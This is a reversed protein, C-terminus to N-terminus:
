QGRAMQWKKQITEWSTKIAEEDDVYIGWIVENGSATTTYLMILKDELECDNVSSLDVALNDLSQRNLIFVCSRPHPSPDLNCVFLPGKITSEGWNDGEMPYVTANNALTDCSTIGPIYRQLVNFNLDRILRASQETNAQAQAEVKGIDATNTTVQVESAQQQTSPGAGARAADSEYGPARHQQRNNRQKRPTAPAM